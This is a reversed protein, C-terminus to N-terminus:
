FRILCVSLNQRDNGLVLEFLNHTSSLGFCVRLKQIEKQHAFFIIGFPDSEIRVFSANFDASEM